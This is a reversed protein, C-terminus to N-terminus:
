CTAIEVFQHRSNLFGQFWCPPIGGVGYFNLKNLLMSHKVTDFAKKLDIFVGILLLIIEKILYRTPLSLSPWLHQANKGSVM